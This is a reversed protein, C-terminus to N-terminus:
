PGNTNMFARPIQRMAPTRASGNSQKPVTWPFSNSSVERRQALQARDRDRTFRKFAGLLFSRFKGREPVARAFFHNEILHALFGQTLDQADDPSHGKRRAFAYLPFWYTRCLKELAEQSGPSASDGAALVISWHTTAFQALSRSASENGSSSALTM